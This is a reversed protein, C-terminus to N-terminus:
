VSSLAAMSAIEIFIETLRSPMEPAAVGYPIVAAFNSSLVGCDSYAEAINKTKFAVDNCSRGVDRIETRTARCLAVGLSITNGTKSEDAREVTKPTIKVRIKIM